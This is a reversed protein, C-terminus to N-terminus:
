DERDPSLTDETVDELCREVLPIPINSRTRDRESVFLSPPLRRDFSKVYASSGKEMAEWGSSWMWGTPGVVERASRALDREVGRRGARRASWETLLARLGV